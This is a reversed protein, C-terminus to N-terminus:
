KILPYQLLLNENTEISKKIDKVFDNFMLSFMKNGHIYVYGYEFGPGLAGGFLKTFEQVEESKLYEFFEKESM